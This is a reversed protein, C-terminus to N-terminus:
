CNSIDFSTSLYNTADIVLLEISIVARRKSQKGNLKAVFQKWAPTLRNKAVRNERM